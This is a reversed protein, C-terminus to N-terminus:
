IGPTTANGLDPDRYRRRGCARRWRAHQDRAKADGGQGGGGGNAQIFVAQGSTQGVGASGNLVVTGLITASAAEAVGGNGGDGALTDLAKLTVGGAGGTAAMQM